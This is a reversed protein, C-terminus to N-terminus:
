RDSWSITAVDKFAVGGFIKIGSVWYSYNILLPADNYVYASLGDYVQLERGLVQAIIRVKGLIAKDKKEKEIRDDLNVMLFDVSLEKISNGFGL